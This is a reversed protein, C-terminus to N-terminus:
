ISIFDIASLSQPFYTRIHYLKQFSVSLRGSEQDTLSTIGNLRTAVAERAKSLKNQGRSKLM